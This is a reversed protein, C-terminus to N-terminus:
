WIRGTTVWTVLRQCAGQVSVSEAWCLSGARGISGGHRGLLKFLCYCHVSQKHQWKNQDSRRRPGSLHHLSDGSVKWKKIPLLWKQWFDSKKRKKKGSILTSKDSACPQVSWNAHHIHTGMEQINKCPPTIVSHKWEARSYVSSAYQWSIATHAQTVPEGRSYHGMPFSWLRLPRKMICGGSQTQYLYKYRDSLVLIFELPSASM